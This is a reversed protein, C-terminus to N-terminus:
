PADGAAQMKGRVSSASLRRSIIEGDTLAAKQARRALILDGLKPMGIFRCFDFRQADRYAETFGDAKEKFSIIEKPTPQRPTKRYHDWLGLIWGESAAKRGLESQILRDARDLAEKTWDLNKKKAPDFPQSPTLIERADACAVAIEAPKPFWKSSRVLLDAAKDLETPTYKSILKEIEGLYAPPDESQPPGFVVVLRQLLPNSM